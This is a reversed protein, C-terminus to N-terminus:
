PALGKRRALDAFRTDSRLSDFWFDIALYPPGSRDKYTQEM